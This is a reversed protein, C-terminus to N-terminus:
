NTAAFPHVPAMPHVLAMPPPSPSSVSISIHSDTTVAPRINKPPPNPNSNLHPLIPSPEDDMALTRVLLLVLSIAYLLILTIRSATQTLTPFLAALMMGVLSLGLMIILLPESSPGTGGCLLALEMFLMVVYIIVLILRMEMQSMVEDSAVLSLLLGTGASTGLVVRYVAVNERRSGCM